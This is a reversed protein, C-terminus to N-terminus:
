TNHSKRRDAGQTPGTNNERVQTCQRGSAVNDGTTNTKRGRGWLDGADTPGIDNCERKGMRSRGRYLEEGATHSERDCEM